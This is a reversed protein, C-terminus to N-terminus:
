QHQLRLGPEHWDIVALRGEYSLTVYTTLRDPGGFCLNTVLMDPVPHFRVRGSDPAIEAIARTDLAAVCISGAETVALSDFRVQGGGAGVLTGGGPAPWERKRLTGPAVIDWTWLRGM